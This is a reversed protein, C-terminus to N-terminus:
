KRAQLVAGAIILRMIESTGEYIETIKADRMYREVHYDRMYGYGGHIQVANTTHKMAARSAFLKAMAIEKTARAGTDKLWAAYYVLYRAAEIDTAMDAIMWQIAQFEAIPKGFQVRERAYKVAAEMASEAIGLAQAAIGIRGSDLATMAIKFGEGEAGLRNAVPVRADQFVLECTYSARIGMKDEPPGFTLGETNRDVIFSSIGRTGQSRDTMAMLVYVDAKAGNTIFHKTGNVIYFDGDRTATTRQAAADSGAGPETLAFAGLRAGRALDPLYRRKQDETGFRLITESCLSNHVETIVGTAACAKSIEEICIAHTLADAGGGGWEVPLTMGLYGYQALKRVNEVPFEGTRDYDAAHPQIEKAAFERVMKRITEQEETLRFDM